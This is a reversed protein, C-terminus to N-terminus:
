YKICIFLYVIFLFAVVSLLKIQIFWLIWTLTLCQYTEYVVPKKRYSLYIKLLQISVYLGDIFM